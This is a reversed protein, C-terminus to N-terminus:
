AYNTGEKQVRNQCMDGAFPGAQHLVTRVKNLLEIQGAQPLVALRDLIPQILDDIKTESEFLMMQTQIM